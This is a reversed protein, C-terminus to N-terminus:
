GATLMREFAEPTIVPPDQEPWELLDADGSVIMEAHHERALYIISDDNPDRTLPLGPSPDGLIDATTHLRQIYLAAAELSIWRRLRERGTLVVEVERLLSRCIVLDFAEAEFWSHVIRHSPGPAIAASVLVNSDLVARM